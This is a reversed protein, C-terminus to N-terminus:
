LEGNEKAFYTLILDMIIGKGVHVNSTEMMYLSIWELECQSEL